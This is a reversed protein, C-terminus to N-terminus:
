FHRTVTSRSIRRRQSHFFYEFERKRGEQVAKVLDPDGHSVFYQFPNKEGFEEGMFLMPVYPASTLM